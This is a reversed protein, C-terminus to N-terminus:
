VYDVSLGLVRAVLKLDRANKGTTICCHHSYMTDMFKHGDNVKILGGNLCDSDPYQEYGELEGEVVMVRKLTPHFEVLTVDGIPFEADVATAHDDVIALVKEKLTWEKAFCKPILGMYGCHVILIHNEPEEIDPFKDIREHKIAAMGMLFPYLNTMMIPRQLTKYTIYKTLLSMIDGECAWILQKEEFLMCWTLCPTTDSYFSENLCNIGAGVINEDKEVEQKVALYLKMASIISQEPVNEIPYDKEEWAKKAEENSIKKAREGLEKYSKVVITIGFQDKITQTCQDEWWYFRKFISAQMGDGPNDQFVLFKAQKMERKVGLARCILKTQHINYPAFAQLGNSKLFTVVEFDWMNVTGFESTIALLPVKIKKLDEIKKFADGVLQPFIVGEINEPIRESVEIPEFFEAEDKLQKKLRILQQDFEENKESKFYLPVLRAKM